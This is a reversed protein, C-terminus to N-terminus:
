IGESSSLLLLIADNDTFPGDSLFTVCPQLLFFRVDRITNDLFIQPCHVQYVNNFASWDEPSVTDSPMYYSQPGSPGTNHSASEIIQLHTMYDNLLTIM